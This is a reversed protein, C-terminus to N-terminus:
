GRDEQEPASRHVAVSQVLGMLAMMSITFTGGYSVFPLPLGTIPMRGITMAINVFVHFGLLSAIGGCILRGTPDACVHGVAAVCVLLTGYLVLLLTSGVFGFEEAYVSFIFDTSSVARPLFGLINQTGKLFGKGRFGGSGVAIESQRRNWGAGLPDREPYAFAVVRKKWHPFIVKDTVKEIRVREPSGGPMGEPILIAGFFLAALVLGALLAGVVFKPATGSVFLITWVTPVLALATGLDPELVILGMPALVAVAVAFIKSAPKQLSTATLLFPVVLVVTIKSFESPQLGFIWRRAGFIEKGIGPVLVAALLGMVGFYLVPSMDVWRKYPVAALILYAALGLPIWQRVQTRWLWRVSGERVACASYVSIVGLALLAAMCLFLIFGAWSWRLGKAWVKLFELNM